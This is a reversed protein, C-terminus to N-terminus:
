FWYQDCICNNEATDLSANMKHQPVHVQNHRYKVILLKNSM